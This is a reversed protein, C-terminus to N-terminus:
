PYSTAVAPAGVRVVFENLHKNITCFFLGSIWSIPMM